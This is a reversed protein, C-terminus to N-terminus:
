VDQAEADHMAQAIRTNLRQTISEVTPWREHGLARLTTRIADELTDRTFATECFGRGSTILAAIDQEVADNMVQLTRPEVCTVNGNRVVYEIVPVTNEECQEGSFLQARLDLYPFVEAIVEWEHLVDTASPWKGINHGQTSITGDLNCWGHPGGVYCTSIWDTRLYEVGVHGYHERFISEIDYSDWIYKEDVKFGPAWRKLLTEARKSYEDRRGSGIDYFCRNVIRHTADNNASIHMNDMRICIELAQERTVSSGQVRLEPWKPLGVTAPDIERQQEELQVRAM